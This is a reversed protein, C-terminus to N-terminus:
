SSMRLLELVARNWGAPGIGDARRLNPMDLAPHHRGDPRQVAVPFDVRELMPLDNPSDGLAITTVRGYRSRYIETLIHVAKGKDNDGLLHHYVGRTLHLGKAQVSVALKEQEASNGDFFFPEDFDRQQALLAEERPLATRAAVEDASLDGFGTVPFGEKRLEGLAQRLRAYPMGLRIVRYGAISLFEHRVGRADAPFSVEPIFIGGGNESIFPERNGLRSRYREIEGRTKSSCLVLPINRAAIMELAPMAAAFSYTEDLLTGDLDSFIIVTTHNMMHIAERDSPSERM